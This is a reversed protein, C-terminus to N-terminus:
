RSVKVITMRNNYSATFPNANLLADETVSELPIEAIHSLTQGYAFLHIKTTGSSIQLKASTQQKCMDVRQAMKPGYQM